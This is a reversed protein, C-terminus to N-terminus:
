TGMAIAMLYRGTHADVFVVFDAPHTAPVSAAGLRHGLIPMQIDRYVVAWAETKVYSPLITGDPQVPGQNPDTFRVLSETPITSGVFGFESGATTVATDPSVASADSVPLASIGRSALEAAVKSDLGDTVPGVGAAADVAGVRFLAGVVAGLLLMAAALRGPGRKMLKGM